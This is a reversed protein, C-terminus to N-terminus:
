KGTVMPTQTGTINPISFTVAGDILPLIGVPINVTDVVDTFRDAKGDNDTDELITIRDTGRPTNSSPFPYEFSQTVWMRGKADFALNIPKDINPESAYLTIEFGPPVKFGAREEEPTRAETSRINENFKEGSYKSDNDVEPKCSGVLLSCGLLLGFFKTAKIKKMGSHNAPNFM